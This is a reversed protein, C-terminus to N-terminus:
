QLPTEESSSRSTTACSQTWWRHLEAALTDWPLANIDPPEQAQAFLAQGRPYNPHWEAFNDRDPNYLGLLPKDLAAAIHITATDVSVIADALSMQAIVDGIQSSAPYHFVRGDPFDRCIASVEVRNDPAFLLCCRLDPTLTLLLDVLRRISSSTLRRASGSGYPNLAIVPGTAPWLARIAPMRDTSDPLLYHTDPHAVGLRQALLRFKDSFHQGRTAEGLKIDILGLEDDLGAIHTAQVQNLFFIDKMKLQKGFHVLVEFQGLDSALRRLATYSPRKACEFVRDAHFHDRFLWAMQPTTIVDVKWSPNAQQLAPIFWSSVIADGLKADWRIVVIRREPTLPSSGTRDFLWRGLVRRSRDRALQLRTKIRMFMPM